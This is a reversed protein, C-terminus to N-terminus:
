SLRLAAHVFGAIDDPAGSRLVADVLERARKHTFGLNTLASLAAAATDVKAPSPPMGYPTGDAHRFTFGGSATGDIVLTGAHV